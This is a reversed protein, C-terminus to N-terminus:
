IEQVVRGKVGGYIVRTIEAIDVEEQLYAKAVADIYANASVGRHAPVYM